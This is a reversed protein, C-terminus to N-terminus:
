GQLRIYFRYLWGFGGIFCGAAVSCGKTGVYLSSSFFVFSFFTPFFLSFEEMMRQGLCPTASVKTKGSRLVVQDGSCEEDSEM